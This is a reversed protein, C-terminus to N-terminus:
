ASIERIDWLCSNISFAEASTAERSDLEILVDM